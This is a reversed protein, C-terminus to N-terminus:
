GLISDLAHSVQNVLEYANIGEHIHDHEIDIEESQQSITREIELLKEELMLEVRTQDAQKACIGSIEGTGSDQRKAIVNLQDNLNALCDLTCEYEQDLKKVTM